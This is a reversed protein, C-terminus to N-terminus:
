VAADRKGAQVVGAAVAATVSRADGQDAGIEVLDTHLRRTAALGVRKLFFSTQRIMKFNIAVYM